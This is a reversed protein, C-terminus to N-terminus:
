TTPSFLPLDIPAIEGGIAQVQRAKARGDLRLSATPEKIFDKTGSTHSLLHGITVPKWSEPTGDLYKGVPDDPAVKKEEVLMMVAAATFTKTISQIQFVTDPTAPVSLEVNALGYARSYIVQGNKAVALSLGPVHLRDM